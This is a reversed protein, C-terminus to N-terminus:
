VCVCDMLIVANEIEIERQSKECDISSCCQDKRNLSPSHFLDNLETVQLHCRNDNSDSFHVSMFLSAETYSWFCCRESIKKSVKLLKEGPESDRM